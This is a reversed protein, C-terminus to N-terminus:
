IFRQFYTQENEPSLFKGEEKAFRIIRKLSQAMPQSNSHENKVKNFLSHQKMTINIPTLREIYSLLDKASYSVIDKNHNDKLLSVNYQSGFIENFLRLSYQKGKRTNKSMIDVVTTPEGIATLKQTIQELKEPNDKLHYKATRGLKAGFNQNYNKNNIAEM